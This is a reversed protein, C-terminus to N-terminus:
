PYLWTEGEISISFSNAIETSAAITFGEQLCLNLPITKEFSPVINTQTTSPIYIETFLFYAGTGTKKIYLRVMGEATSGMAKVVVNNINTGNHQCTYIDVIAGTGDLNANATSIVGLGTTSFYNTTDCCDNPIEAPYERDIAEVVINFEESKQTSFMLAINEGVFFNGQLIAEFAPQVASKTTTPVPIERLLTIVPTSAPKKLFLRIMGQTTDVTSKIRISKIITSRGGTLVPVVTGSGDLNSNATDIKEVGTIATQQAYGSPHMTSFPMEYLIENM